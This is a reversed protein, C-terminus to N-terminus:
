RCRDPAVPPGRRDRHLNVIVLVIGVIRFPGLRLGQVLEHVIVRVDPNDGPAPQNNGAGASPGRQHHGDGTLVRGVNKPRPKVADIRINALAKEIRQVFPDTVVAVAVALDIVRLRVPRAPLFDRFEPALNGRDVSFNVPKRLCRREVHRENEAVIEDASGPQVGILRRLRPVLKIVPALLQGAGVSDTSPNGGGLCRPKPRCASPKSHSGQICDAPPFEGDLLDPAARAGAPLIRKRRVRGFKTRGVPLIEGGHRRLPVGVERRGLSYRRRSKIVPEAPSFPDVIGRRAFRHIQAGIIQLAAVDLHASAVNGKRRLIDDGADRAHDIGRRTPGIQKPGALDGDLRAVDVAQHPVRLVVANRGLEQVPKGKRRAAGGAKADDLILPMKERQALAHPPTRFGLAVLDPLHQGRQRRVAHRQLIRATFNEAAHGPEHRRVLQLREAEVVVELINRRGDEAVVVIELRALDLDEGLGVHAVPIGHVDRQLSLDEREEHRLVSFVEIVRFRQLPDFGFGVIALHEREALLHKRGIARGRARHKGDEEDGEDDDDPQQQPREHLLSSLRGAAADVASPEGPQDERRGEREDRHPAVVRQQLSHHHRKLVVLDHALTGEDAQVIEDAKKEVPRPPEAEPVREIEHDQVHDQGEDRRDHQREHERFNRVAFDEEARKKKERLDGAAEDDHEQPLLHVVRRRAAQEVLADEEDIVAEARLDGRM